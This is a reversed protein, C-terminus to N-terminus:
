RAEENVVAGEGGGASRWHNTFIALTRQGCSLVLGRKEIESPTGPYVSNNITEALCAEPEGNSMSLFAGYIARVADVDSNQPEEGPGGVCCWMKSVSALKADKFAVTAYFKIPGGPQSNKGEVAFDGDSEQQLDCCENLATLVADQPSGIRLSVPRGPPGVAISTNTAARTDKGTQARLLSVSHFCIAAILSGLIISCLIAHRHKVSLSQVKVHADEKGPAAPPELM